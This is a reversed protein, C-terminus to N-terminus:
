IKILFTKIEFPKIKINNLEVENIINEMLDTEYINKFKFNMKISLKKEKGESEFIRMIYGSKNEAMKFASLVIGETDISIFSKEVNEDSKVIFSFVPNIFNYSLKIVEDIKEPKLPLILFEYYHTGNDYSGIDPIFGSAKETPSRL